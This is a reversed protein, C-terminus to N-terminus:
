DETVGSQILSSETIAATGTTHLEIHKPRRGHQRGRQRRKKAEKVRRLWNERNNHERTPYHLIAPFSVSAKAARKREKCREALLEKLQSDSRRIVKEPSTEEVPDTKKLCSKPYTGATPGKLTVRPSTKDVGEAFKIWHRDKDPIGIEPLFGVHQHLNSEGMMDVNGHRGYIYKAREYRLGDDFSNILVKHKDHQLPPLKFELKIPNVRADYDMTNAMQRARRVGSETKYDAYAYVPPEREGDRLSFKSKANRRHIEQARETLTTKLKEKYGELLELSRRLRLEQRRFNCAQLSKEIELQKLIVDLRTKELDNMITADSHMKKIRKMLQLHRDCIGATQDTSNSNESQTCAELADLYEGQQGWMIAAITPRHVPRQM